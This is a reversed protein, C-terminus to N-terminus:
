RVCERETNVQTSSFFFIFLINADVEAVNRQRARGREKEEERLACITIFIDMSAFYLAECMCRVHSSHKTIGGWIKKLLKFLMLAVTQWAM